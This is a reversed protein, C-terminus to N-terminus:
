YTFGRNELKIRKSSKSLETLYYVLKDHNIHWHGVNFGLFEDPRPINKNFKENVPLFYDVYKQSQASFSVSLILLCIFHKQISYTINFFIM